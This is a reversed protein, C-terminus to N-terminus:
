EHDFGRPREEPKAPRARNPRRGPHGPKPELVLPPDVGGHPRGTGRFRKNGGATGESDFTQYHEIRNTEPNRRFSTHPGEADPHPALHNAGRGGGGAGRAADGGLETAGRAVDDGAGRVVKAADEALDVVDDVKSLAKGGPLNGGAAVLVVVAGKVVDGAFMMELGQDAQNVGAYEILTSMATAGIAKLTGWFGGRRHGSVAVNEWYENACSPWPECLGNPDVRRWPDDHTYTYASWEPAGEALPDM